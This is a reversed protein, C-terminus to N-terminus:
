WRQLETVAEEWDAVHTLAPHHYFVNTKVHCGDPLEGVVIVPKGTAVACGIEFYTGRYAYDPDQLFAVVIDADLVGDADFKAYEALSPYSRDGQEVVTWDNPVKYGLKRLAVIKDHIDDRDAYKGAVYLKLTTWPWRRDVLTIFIFLVLGMLLTATLKQVGTDPLNAHGQVTRNLSMAYGYLESLFIMVMTDIFSHQYPFTHPTLDKIEEM